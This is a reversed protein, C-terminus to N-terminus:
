KKMKNEVEEKLEEIEKKIDKLWDNYLNKYYTRTASESRIKDDVEKKMRAIRDIIIKAAALAGKAKEFDEEQRTVIEVCAERAVDLMGKDSAGNLKEHATDVAAKLGLSMHVLDFLDTLSKEIMQNFQNFELKEKQNKRAVKVLETKLNEDLAHFHKQGANILGAISKPGNEKTKNLLAM